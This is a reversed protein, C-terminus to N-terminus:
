SRADKMVLYEAVSRAEVMDPGVLKRFIDLYGDIDDSNDSYDPTVQTRVAKMGILLLPVDYATVEHGLIGTWVQAIRVFTETPDGYVEVRRDIVEKLNASRAAEKALPTDNM